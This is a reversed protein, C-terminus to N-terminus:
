TRRQPAVQEKRLSSVVTAAVGAIVLGALVFPMSTLTIAGERSPFASLCYVMHDWWAAAIIEPLADGDVDAVIVSSIDEAGTSYSWKLGGTSNLCCIVGGPQRSGESYESLTGVVVEQKGDKDVDSVALGYATGNGINIVWELVGLGNLCYVENGAAAIINTKKDNTVNAVEIHSVPYATPYNWMEAGSGNLCYVGGAGVLIEPKGTEDVDTVVPACSISSFTKDWKM